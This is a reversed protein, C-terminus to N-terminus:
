ELISPLKDLPISALPVGANSSFVHPYCTHYSLMASFFGLLAGAVVDSPHHWHDIVRSSAVSFAWGLPIVICLLTKMRTAVSYNKRQLGIKGLFYLALFSMAGFTLSSHGSPFSFQAELQREYPATCKRLEKSFECLAYFNPRRRMVSYKILQTTMESLGINTMAASVGAQLDHRNPSLWGVIGVVLIPMIAGTWYLLNAASIIALYPEFNLFIDVL